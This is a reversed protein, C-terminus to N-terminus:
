GWKEMVMSVFLASTWGYDRINQLKVEMQYPAVANGKRNLKSPSVRNTSDYFEYIVGDHLYWFTIVDITKDILAAAAEDFGNETLGKAIMYNYNIWVPGRWMDTGFSPQDVAISPISFASGFTAEDELHRALREAKGTDCIGAFLPLFSSVSKVKILAGGEVLRDYYLGDEEDWLWTNVALKISEYLRDWYAKDEPLKLIDCLKSMHRAENAMFSSFDICAMQTVADFRPSNDMGCEDCRCHVSNAEVYWEFLNNLNSGRNDVNWRLYRSLKPYIEKVQKKDMEGEYLQYVGWALVPPQTVDSSTFPTSMHPIFGDGRQTAFVAEITEWALNKNMFRNGLAHFVSDWLWLNRHPLRDPTTWRTSFRGEPTYVQSKMVSYCKNLTRMTPLDLNAPVPLNNYFDMKAALAQEADIQLASRAKEVADEASLSSFAFTFCVRGDRQERCFAAYEGEAEYLECDKVVHIREGMSDVIPAAWAATQGIVIDQASFVLILDEAHADGKRHLVAHIVDSAVIKYAINGIQHPMVYLQKKARQFIVGLRDGCLTGVLSDGHTNEGDLGSYAFLSGQGWVNPWAVPNIQKEEEAFEASMLPPETEGEIFQGQQRLMYRIESAPVDRVDRRQTRVTLAAAIGAAEAFGSINSMVRYSSHAVFDGSICRSALLLNHFGKAIISRYPIHYYGSGPIGMPKASGGEPDHVDIDYAGAAIMDPFRAERICDEGTLRYDGEVRRGERVGLKRSVFDVSSEAFAPHVRIASLLEEIQQKGAELAERVTEPQTPDVNLLATSNFLLAEGGPYPFCLVKDRTNRTGGSLKLKLYYPTLEERLQRIGHWDTIDPNRLQTKDFGSLKFTLTASMMKGDETRGMQFSAGALAALNGDATGDIFVQAAVEACWGGETQLAVIRGDKVHVRTVETGSWIDLSAEQRLLRMYTEKLEAEDYVPVQSSQNELISYAEPFLQRHIGEVVPRGNADWFRCVLGVPSHVGTGGIEEDKEILLVSCQQRAAALAACIGGIGAGVVIIDYHHTRM